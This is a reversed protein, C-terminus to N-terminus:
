MMRIIRHRFAGLIGGVSLLLAAFEAFINWAAPSCYIYVGIGSAILCAITKLHHIIKYEIM